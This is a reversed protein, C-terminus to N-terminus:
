HFFMRCYFGITYPIDKIDYDQHMQLSNIFPVLQIKLFIGDKFKWFFSKNGNSIPRNLITDEYKYRGAKRQHEKCKDVKLTAASSTLIFKYAVYEQPGRWM